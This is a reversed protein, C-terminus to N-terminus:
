IAVARRRDEIAAADRPTLAPGPPKCHRCRLAESATGSVIQRSSPRAGRPRARLRPPRSTAERWRGEADRSGTLRAQEAQYYQSDVPVRQRGDARRGGERAGRLLLSVMRNHCSQRSGFAALKQPPPVWQLLIRCFTGSALPGGHASIRVKGVVVGCGSRRPEPLERSSRGPHVRLRGQRPDPVPDGVASVKVVIPSQWLHKGAILHSLHYRHQRENERGVRM